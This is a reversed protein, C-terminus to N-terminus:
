ILGLDAAARVAGRRNSVGLKRYIHALHTKATNLTIFEAEAIEANSLNTALYRLITQERVTLSEGWENVASTGSAALRDQVGIVVEPHATGTRLHDRLLPGLTPGIV